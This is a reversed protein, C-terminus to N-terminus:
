FEINTEFDVPIGNIKRLIDNNYTLTYNQTGNKHYFRWTKEKRGMLYYTDKKLIKNDHYFKHKGDPNGQIYNGTFLINGNLYYYNWMGDKLGDKYSGKKILDGDKYFWRGDKYGDIYDGQAVVEGYEDFETFMGEERGNFYSEERHLDNDSYYWIWTGSLKGKRFKGEQEINGSKYYYIWNGTMWNEKYIGKSKVEGTSYYFIWNGQKNGDVNVIGEGILNGDTDYMRSRNVRGNEDFERHIGVPKNGIFAGSYKIIGDDFYENKINATKKDIYNSDIMIGEEYKIAELLEGVKSFKKLYGNIMGDKFIQETEIKGNTYYNRWVGQKLGNEDYRNIEQFNILVNNRYDHIGILNGDEDYEKGEGNKMGDKYYISKHLKGYKNYYYSNGQKVNNKYLEKTSIYTGSDNEWRKCKIYYGNKKGDFYSIKSITDGHVNYFIWISDLMGNKRNGESKLAGNIFYSKWYGDPKGEKIFGESSVQGSEHYFKTYGDTIEQTLVYGNSLCFILFLINILVFRINIQM